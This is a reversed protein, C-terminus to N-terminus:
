EQSECDRVAVVIHPQRLATLAHPGERGSGAGWSFLRTGGTRLEPPLISNLADYVAQARLASLICQQQRGPTDPAFGIVYIDLKPASPDQPLEAALTTLFDADQPSLAAAGAQFLIPTPIIRMAGRHLDSVETSISRRLDDFLKRIKEDEADIIREPALNDPDPEVAYKRPQFGLCPQPRFGLLWRPVGSLDIAM